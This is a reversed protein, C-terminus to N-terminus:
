TTRSHSYYHQRCGRPWYALLLVNFPDRLEFFGSKSIDLSKRSGKCGRMDSCRQLRSFDSPFWPYDYKADRKDGSGHYRIRCGDDIELLITFTEEELPLSSMSTFRTALHTSEIARDATDDMTRLLLALISVRTQFRLLACEVVSSLLSLDSLYRPWRGQSVSVTCVREHM